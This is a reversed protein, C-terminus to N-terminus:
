FDDCDVLGDGDDDLGNSCLETGTDGGSDTVDMGADVRPDLSSAFDTRGCAGFVLAAALVGLRTLVTRSAAM